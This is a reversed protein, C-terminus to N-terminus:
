DNKIQTIQTIQPEGNLIGWPESYDGKLFYNKFIAGYDRLIGKNKLYIWPNGNLACTRDFEELYYLYYLYYIYISIKM